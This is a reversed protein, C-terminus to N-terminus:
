NTGSENSLNLLVHASMYSGRNIWLSRCVELLVIITSLKIVRKYKAEKLDSIRQSM